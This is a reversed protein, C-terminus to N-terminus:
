VVQGTVGRLQQQQGQGAGQQWWCSTTLVAWKHQLLLLDQAPSQPLKSVSVPLQLLLLLAGAVVFAAAAATAPCYPRLLQAYARHILQVAHLAPIGLANLLLQHRSSDLHQLLVELHTLPHPVRM